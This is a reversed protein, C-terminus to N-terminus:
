HAPLTFMLAYPTTFRLQRIAGFMYIEAHLMFTALTITDRRLPTVRLVRQLLLAAEADADDRLLM